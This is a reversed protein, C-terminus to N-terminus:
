NKDLLATPFKIQLILKSYVFIKNLSINGV